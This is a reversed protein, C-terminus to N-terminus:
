KYIQSLYVFKVFYIKKKIIFLLLSKSKISQQLESYQIHNFFLIKIDNNM